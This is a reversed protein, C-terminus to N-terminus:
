LIFGLYEVEQAGFVCVQRLRQFVLEIHEVHQESTGSYILIDDNYCCVFKDVYDQFVDNMLHMRLGSLYLM